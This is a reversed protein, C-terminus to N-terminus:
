SVIAFARVPFSGMGAIRPPAAFFRFGTPPLAELGTLHEVVPIGAALLLRRTVTGLRTSM